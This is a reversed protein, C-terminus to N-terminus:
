GSCPMVRLIKIKTATSGPAAYAVSGDPFSRFDQYRNGKIAVSIPLSLASGTTSDLVQVYFSRTTAGYVLDGKTTSQEWAALLNTKGYNVLHPARENYTTSNAIAVQRDATSTKFHIM